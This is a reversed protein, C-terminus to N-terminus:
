ITNRRTSPRMCIYTHTYTPKNIDNPQHYSILEFTSVINFKACFDGAVCLLLTFKRGSFFSLIFFLVVCVSTCSYIVCVLGYICLKQSSRINLQQQQQSRRFSELFYTQTDKLRVKATHETHKYQQLAYHKTNDRLTEDIKLM